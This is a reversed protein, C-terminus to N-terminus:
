RITEPRTANETRHGPFPPPMTAPARIGDRTGSGGIGDTGRLRRRIARMTARPWAPGKERRIRRHPTRRASAGHGVFSRDM